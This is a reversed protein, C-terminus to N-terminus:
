GSVQMSSTISLERTNNADFGDRHWQELQADRQVVTM